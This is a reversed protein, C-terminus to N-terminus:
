SFASSCQCFLGLIFLYNFVDCSGYTDMAVKIVLDFYGIEDDSTVPTYPRIVLDDKIRASLYMHKGSLFSKMFPDRDGRKSSEGIPLGLIMDSRLSLTAHRSERDVHSFNRRPERTVHNQRTERKREAVEKEILKMPIKM